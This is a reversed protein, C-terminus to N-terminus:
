GSQHVTGLVLYTPQHEEPLLFPFCSALCVFRGFHCLTLAVRRDLTTTRVDSDWKIQLYDKM